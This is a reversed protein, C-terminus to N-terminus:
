CHHCVSKFDPQWSYMRLKSWEFNQNFKFKRDPCRQVATWVLIMEIKAGYNQLIKISLIQTQSCTTLFYNDWIDRPYEKVVFVPILCNLNM